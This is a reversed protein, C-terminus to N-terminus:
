ATKLTQLIQYNRIWEATRAMGEDLGIRPKYGLVRSAKEISYAHPRTIFDISEPLVTAKKGQQRLAAKALGAPMSIMPKPYGGIEALRTYYERWTTECGDTLNFAEGYMEKEVSLFVGDVLNDVYLHNCIGRGGDILMFKKKQMTQLPRMVWALANPGYVDGPRIIIVGFNSPNNLKLVEIESEMKTQCVPNNEGRFPGEETVQDPYRFGYVMASSLHVFTTAGANKAATAANIAGQVNIQRFFDLSGGAEIVSETHFVIDIGECARELVESDNSSGIFVLAGLEEALKAKEPSPELGRVKMGRQMAMEAARLGIFDGINTIFFTKNQLNM